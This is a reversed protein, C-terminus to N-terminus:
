FVPGEESMRLVRDIDQRNAVYNRLGEEYFLYGGSLSGDKDYQAWHRLAIDTEAEQCRLDYLAYEVIGHHFEEPFDPTDGDEVLDPPLSTHHVRISGTDASARPHFGMWWASRMFFFRAEAEMREWQPMVTGGDIEKVQIPTLWRAPSAAFARSVSLIPSRSYGRLDYYTRRALLPITTTVEYWETADSIERLGENIATDIDAQLWFVSSVASEGLRRQVEARIESFTV